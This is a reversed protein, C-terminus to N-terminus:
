AQIQPKPPIILISPNTNMVSLDIDVSHALIREHHCLIMWRKPDEVGEAVLVVLTDRKVHACDGCEEGASWWEARRIKRESRERERDPDLPVM